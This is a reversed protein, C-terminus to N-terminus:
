PMLRVCLLQLNPNPGDSFVQLAQYSLESLVNGALLRPKNTGSYLELEAPPLLAQVRPDTVQTRGTVIQLPPCQANLVSVPHQKSHHQHWKRRPPHQNTYPMVTGPM